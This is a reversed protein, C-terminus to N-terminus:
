RALLDTLLGVFTLLNVTVHVAAAVATARTRAVLLAIPLAFAAVTLVAHPQWLHYAAFLLSGIVAAPLPATPIRPQLYGRFWAEETLPGVVVAALLWLGLTTAAVAPQATLPGPDVALWGPLVGSLLDQLVPEVPLLLGPLALAAVLVVVGVAFARRRDLAGLGLLPAVHRGAARDRRRLVLLLGLEVPVLVVLIGGLVAWVAPLGAAVLVPATLAVTAFLAAGPALHLLVTVPWSLPTAPPAAPSVITM